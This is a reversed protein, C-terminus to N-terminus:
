SYEISFPELSDLPVSIVSKTVSAMFHPTDMDYTIWAGQFNPKSSDWLYGEFYEEFILNNDKAILIAHVGHNQHRNIFELMELLKQSRLGVQSHQATEWGENTQLPAEYVDDSHSDNPSKKNCSFLYISLIFSIILINFLSFIRAFNRKNM